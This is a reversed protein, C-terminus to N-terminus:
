HASNQEEALRWEVLEDLLVDEVTEVRSRVSSETALSGFGAGAAALRDAMGAYRSTRRTSDLATRLASAVGAILPLAIPLFYFFVAVLWFKVAPEEGGHHPDHLGHAHHIKYFVAGLVIAWALWGTWQGVLRTRRVVKASAAHKGRFYGSQDEIRKKLYEDRAEPWSSSAAPERTALLGSAVAFRRWSPVHSAVKPFLPDVFAAAGCLGRVLEAAFRSDIWNRHAHHIRHHGALRVALSIFVFEIAATVALVWAAIESEPQRKFVVFAAILAALGHLVISRVLNKRFMGAEIGAVKSLRAHLETATAAPAGSSLKNLQRIEKTEPDNEPPFVTPPAKVEGTIADIVIVTKGLARAHAVIEATGGLGRSPAGDWVAILADAAEIMEVGADYYCDPRRDSKRTIRFTGGNKRARAERIMQEAQQWVEPAADHFDKRFEAEPMPLILHLPVGLAAASHGFLLDGGYAASGFAEIRGGARAAQEQLRALERTIAGRIKEGDAIRRHGSFGVIWVPELM